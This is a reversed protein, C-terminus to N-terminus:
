EEENEIDLVWNLILMRDRLKCRQKIGMIIENELEKNELLDKIDDVRKKIEKETKM